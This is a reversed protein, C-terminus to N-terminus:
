VKGMLIKGFNKKKKECFKIGILHETLEEAETRFSTWLLVVAASVVEAEM